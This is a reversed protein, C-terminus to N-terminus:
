PFLYELRFNCKEDIFHVITQLHQLQTSFHRAILLQLIYINSAIFCTFVNFVRSSINGM